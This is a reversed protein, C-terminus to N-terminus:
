NLGIYVISTAVVGALLYYIRSRRIRDNEHLLTEKQIRVNELERDNSELQMKWYQAEYNRLGIATDAEIIRLEMNAVLEKYKEVRISDFEAKTKYNLLKVVKSQPMYFLVETSQNTYSQGPSLKGTTEQAQLIAHTALFLSLTIIIRM